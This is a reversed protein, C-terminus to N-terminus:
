KAGNLKDIEEKQKKATFEKASLKSELAKVKERLAQNDMELKMIRKNPEDYNTDDNLIANM